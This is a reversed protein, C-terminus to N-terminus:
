ELQLVGALGRETLSMKGAAAMHTVRKDGRQHRHGGSPHHAWPAISKYVSAHPDSRFDSSTTLLNTGLCQCPYLALAGFPVIGVVIADVGNSVEPAIERERPKCAVAFVRVLHDESQGIHLIVGALDLSAGLALDERDKVHAGVVAVQLHQEASRLVPAFMHEM